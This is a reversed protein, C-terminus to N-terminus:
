IYEITSIIFSDIGGRRFAKRNPDNLYIPRTQGYQGDLILFVKSDTAAEPRSGTFIIIEYYYKEHWYTKLKVLGIKKEDLKDLISSILMLIFYVCSISIVTIYLTINNLFSTHAWIYNFNLNSPLVSLGSTFETLHNTRCYTYDITTLSLVEM